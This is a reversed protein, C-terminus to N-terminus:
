GTDLAIRIAARERVLPRIVESRVRGHERDEDYVQWGAADDFDAAVAYDWTGEGLGLDPGHTYTRIAPIAAPLGSLADHVAAVDVASVGDNWRFLVIHRIM